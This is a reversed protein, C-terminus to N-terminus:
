PRWSEDFSEHDAHPLALLLLTQCPWGPLDRDNWLSSDDDGCTQCYRESYQDPQRGEDEDVLAWSRHLEVIRRKAEVEALLRAPSMPGELVGFPAFSEGITRLVLEDQDLRARLFEVLDM